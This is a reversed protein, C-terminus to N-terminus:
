ASAEPRIGAFAGALMLLAAAWWLAFLPVFRVLL